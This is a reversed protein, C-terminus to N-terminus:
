RVTAAKTQHLRMRIASMDGLDRPEWGSAAQHELWTELREPTPHTFPAFWSIKTTM